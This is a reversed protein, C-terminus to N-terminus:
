KIELIKDTIIEVQETRKEVEDLDPVIFDHVIRNRLELARELNVLDRNTILKEMYLTRLNKGISVSSRSLNKFELTNLVSRELNKWSHIFNHNKLLEDQRKTMEKEREKSYEAVFKSVLALLMGVGSVLLAVRETGNIKLEYFSFVFYMLGIASAIIGLFMYTKLILRLRNKRHYDKQLRYNAEDLYKKYDIDNIYDEM